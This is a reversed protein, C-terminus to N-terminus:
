EATGIKAEILGQIAKQFEDDCDFKKTLDFLDPVFVYAESQALRQVAPWLIKAFDAHDESWHVWRRQDGSETADLYKILIGADGPRRVRSGQSGVLVHWDKKGTGPTIYSKS